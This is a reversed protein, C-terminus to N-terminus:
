NNHINQQTHIINIINNITNFKGDAVNEQPIIINFKKEIEFYLYLLNRPYFGINEGLLEEDLYNNEVEELDINFLEFFINNLRLLIAEKQKDNM